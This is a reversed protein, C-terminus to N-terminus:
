RRLRYYNRPGAPTILLSTLNGNSVAAATSVPSWSLAALTSSTELAYAPAVSPWTLLLKGDEMGVSLVTPTVDAADLSYLAFNDIGWYWSGTGASAFRLRVKAKRDAGPLRYFEVRKSETYDDNIRGSIYPALTSWTGPAAGIFSGYTGGRPDGTVPDAYSAADGRTASLTAEADIGGIGDRLIDVDDIMYVVPLWTAGQDTSYEVAGLNDQNQEYMSHFYLHINSHGSLDFDPSFLYQVQSGGRQDSEAYFYNRSVLSQVRVNNVYSEAVATVRRPGEWGIALTREKSLVVWGMFAQSNPDNLDWGTSNNSYQEVTWGHYNWTSPVPAAGTLVEETFEAPAATQEAWSEFTEEMIPPNPLLINTYQQTTFQYELTTVAPIAATDAVVLKVTHVSKSPFLTPPTYSITTRNAARTVSPTVLVNDVLLQISAPNVPSPSGDVLRYFFEPRPVVTTSGSAPAAYEAYASGSSATLQRYALIASPDNVGDNILIRPAAAGPDGPDKRGLYWAVSADGNGEMYILRFGYSGAQSVTFDFSTDEAGRGGDYAGLSLAGLADSPNAGTTVRFGDDSNVVMTYTGPELVLYTVAEIAINDTSGEMGPIGPMTGNQNYNISTVEEYYGDPRFTTLDAVNEYPLTTTPDVLRGALQDEARTLQNPLGAPNTAQVTKVRFGAANVDVAGVPHSFSAPIVTQSFATLASGPWLLLGFTLPHLPRLEIKM